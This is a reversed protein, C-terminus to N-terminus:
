QGTRQRKGGGKGAVSRAKAKAGKAAGSQAAGLMNTFGKSADKAKGGRRNLM